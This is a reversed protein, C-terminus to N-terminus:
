RCLWRYTVASPDRSGCLDNSGFAGFPVGLRVPSATRFSSRTPEREGLNSSEPVNRHGTREGSTTAALRSGLETAPVTRARSLMWCDM